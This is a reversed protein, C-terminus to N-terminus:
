GENVPCYLNSTSDASLYLSAIYIHLTIYVDAFFFVFWLYLYFSYIHLAFLNMCM